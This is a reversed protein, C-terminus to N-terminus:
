GMKKLFSLKTETKYVPLYKKIQRSFDVSPSKPRYEFANGTTSIASNRSYAWDPNGYKERHLMGLLSFIGFSWLISWVSEFYVLHGFFIGVDEM